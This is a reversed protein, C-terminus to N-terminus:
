KCGDASAKHLSFAPPEFGEESNKQTQSSDSNHFKWQVCAGAAMCNAIKQQVVQPKTAGGTHNINLGDPECGIKIVEMGLEKLLRPALEYSAGNACDVVVKLNKLPRDAAAKLHWFYGDRIEAGEATSGLGTGVPRNFKHGEFLSEAESEIEEMLKKGDPGFFKIGNDQAPNHSASIVVGLSFDGRRVAYSAAPTPLVGGNTVNWGAALFASSISLQLMEGSQRTDRIIIARKQFGRATCVEAIASGAKIALEPTLIQNAIGRIGDTGFYPKSM